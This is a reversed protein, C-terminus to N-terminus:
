IALREILGWFYKFFIEEFGNPHNALYFALHRQYFEEIRDGPIAFVRKFFHKLFQSRDWSLPNGLDLTDSAFDFRNRPKFYTVSM